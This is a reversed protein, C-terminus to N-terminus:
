FVILLLFVDVLVVLSRDWNPMDVSACLAKYGFWRSVNGCECHTDGVNVDVDVWVTSAAFEALCGDACVAHRSVRAGFCGEDLIGNSFDLPVLRGCLEHESLM